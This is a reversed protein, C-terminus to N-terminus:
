IAHYGRRRKWEGAFVREQASPLGLYLVNRVIGSWESEPLLEFASAALNNSHTLTLGLEYDDLGLEYDDLGLEHDGLGRRRLVNPRRKEEDEAFDDRADLLYLWRGLHYLLNSRTRRLADGDAEGREADPAESEAASSLLRAFKDAASDLPADESESAETEALERLLVRAAEDFAAYERAARKYPGGLFIMALRAAAARLPGEDRADDLLKHHALIIGYGAATEAASGVNVCCRKKRLSVPCRRKEVRPAEGPKWLLAALFVVDYSLVCRAAFGGRRGLEHCVGCYLARFLELERVRLEPTFPRVYGFM